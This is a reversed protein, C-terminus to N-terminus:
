QCQLVILIDILRLGKKGLSLYSLAAKPIRLLHLAQAVTVTAIISIRPKSTVPM